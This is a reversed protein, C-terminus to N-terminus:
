TPESQDVCNDLKRIPWYHTAPSLPVQHVIVIQQVFTLNSMSMTECWNSAAMFWGSFSSPQPWLWSIHGGLMLGVLDNHKLSGATDEAEVEVGGLGECVVLYSHIHSSLVPESQNLPIHKTRIPQWQLIISSVSQLSNPPWPLLSLVTVDCVSALLGPESLNVFATNQNTSLHQTRIPQCSLSHKSAMAVSVSPQNYFHLM